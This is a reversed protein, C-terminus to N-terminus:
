AWFGEVEPPIPFKTSLPAATMTVVGKPAIVAQLSPLAHNPSGTIFFQGYGVGGDPDAPV